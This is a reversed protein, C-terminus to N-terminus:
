LRRGTLEILNLYMCSVCYLKYIKSQRVKNELINRWHRGHQQAMQVVGGHGCLVLGHLLLGLSLSIGCAQYFFFTFFDNIKMAVGSVLCQSFSLM